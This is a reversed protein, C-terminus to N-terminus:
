QGEMWVLILRQDTIVRSALAVVVARWMRGGNRGTVWFSAIVVLAMDTPSLIYVRVVFKVCCFRVLKTPTSFLIKECKSLM